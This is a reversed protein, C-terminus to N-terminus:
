WGFITIIGRKNYNLSFTKTRKNERNPVRERKRELFLKHSKNLSFLPRVIRSGTEKSVIETQRQRETEREGLRM